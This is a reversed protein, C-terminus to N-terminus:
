LGFVRYRTKPYSLEDASVLPPEAGDKSFLSVAALPHFSPALESEAAATLENGEFLSFESPEPASASLTLVPAEIAREAASARTLSAEAFPALLLAAVAVIWRCATARSKM